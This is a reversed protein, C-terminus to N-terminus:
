YLGRFSTCYSGMIVGLSLTLERTNLTWDDRGCWPPNELLCLTLILPQAQCHTRGDQQPGRGEGVPDEQWGRRLSLARHMCYPARSSDASWARTTDKM